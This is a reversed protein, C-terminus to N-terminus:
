PFVHTNSKQVETTLFYPSGAEWSEAKMLFSGLLCGDFSLYTLNFVSLM